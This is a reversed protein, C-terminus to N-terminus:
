QQAKKWIARIMRDKNQMDKKVIVDTYGTSILMSEIENGFCEHIEFYLYGENKLRETAKQAITTYFIIPDSDPVFLALGPEHELVNRHMMEKDADPIYPPNSVIIDFQQNPLDDILINQVMFEIEAENKKANTKALTLAEESVDIGICKSDQIEKKLCIPICGTGTGIDLIDPSLQENERIIWDVLEETEPRPILAHKNSIFRLGYFETFGVVHQYPIGNKLRRLDHSFLGEDYVIESNLALKISDIRLRDLLYNKAISVGEREDYVTTLAEKIAKFLDKAKAKPM